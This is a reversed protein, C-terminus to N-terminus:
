IILFIMKVIKERLKYMLDGYIDPESLGQLLFTKLRVNDVNYNSVLVFHRRYFRSFAQRLKHNRLGKFINATLLFKITPILTMMIVPCELLVFINLFIFVLPHRVLFM